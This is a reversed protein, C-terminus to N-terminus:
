QRREKVASVAVYWFMFLDRKTGVTTRKESEDPEQQERTRSIGIHLWREEFSAVKASIYASAYAESKHNIDLTYAHTCLSTEIWVFIPFM